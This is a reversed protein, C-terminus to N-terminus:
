AEDGLEIMGSKMIFQFSGTSLVPENILVIM